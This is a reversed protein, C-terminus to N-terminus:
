LLLIDVSEASKCPNFGHLGHWGRISNTRHCRRLSEAATKGRQDAAGVYTFGRQQIREDAGLDGDNRGFRLCRTVGIVADDRAGPLALDHEHVCGTDEFRLRASEDGIKVVFDTVGEFANIDDDVDGIGSAGYARFVLADNFQDILNRVRLNEAQVLKVEGIAVVAVRPKLVRSPTYYGGDRRCLFRRRCRGIRAGRCRRASVGRDYLDGRQLVLVNLQEDLRDELMEGNARRLIGIALDGVDGVFEPDGFEDAFLQVELGRLFDGVRGGDLDFLDFIAFVPLTFRDEVDFSGNEGSVLTMLAHENALTRPLDLVDAAGGAMFEFDGHILFDEEVEVHQHIILPHVSEGLSPGPTRFLPRPAIRARQEQGAVQM